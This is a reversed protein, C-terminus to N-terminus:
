PGDIRFLMDRRTCNPQNTSHYPYITLRILQPYTIVHAEESGFEYALQVGMSGVKEQDPPIKPGRIRFVTTNFPTVLFIGSSSWAERRILDDELDIISGGNNHITLDFEAYPYEHKVLKKFKVSIDRDRPCSFTTETSQEPFDTMREFLAKPANGGAFPVTLQHFLADRERPQLVFMKPQRTAPIQALVHFRVAGKPPISIGSPQDRFLPIDRYSGTTYDVSTDHDFDKSDITKAQRSPRSTPSDSFKQWSSTLNKVWLDAAIWKFGQAPKGEVLGGMSFQAWPMAPVQAKVAPKPAERTPAPPAPKAAPITPLAAVKVSEGLVAGTNLDNRKGDCNKISSEDPGCRQGNIATIVQGDERVMTGDSEKAAAHITHGSFTHGEIPIQKGNKDRLYVHVHMAETYGGKPVECSVKGIVTEGGRVKDEVSVQIQDLHVAGVISGDDKQIEVISHDPDNRNKENGVKKVTGSASAVVMPEDLVKRVGPSCGIQVNPAADFADRIGGKLFSDHPGGTLRSLGKIPLFNELSTKQTTQISIPQTLIKTEPKSPTPAPTPGCAAAALGTAAGLAVCVVRLPRPLRTLLDHRSAPLSLLPPEETSRITRAQAVILARAKSGQEWREFITPQWHERM